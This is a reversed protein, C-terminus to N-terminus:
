PITRATNRLRRNSIPNRSRLIIRDVLMLRQSVDRPKPLRISSAVFRHPRRRVSRKYASAAGGEEQAVLWGFPGKPRASPSGLCREAKPREGDVGREQTMPWIGLSRRRCVSPASSVALLSRAFFRDFSACQPSSSCPSLLALSLFASPQSPPTGDRGIRATTLQWTEHEAGCLVCPQPRPRTRPSQSM